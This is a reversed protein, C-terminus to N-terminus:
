KVYLSEEKYNKIKTLKKTRRCYACSECRIPDRLGAKVENYMPANDEVIRLAADLETQPIYFADLDTEKEKTVAVIVFPLTKGTMQRYLERYIAGQSVYDWAEIWSVKCGNKESWVMEFDKTSKLDVICGETFPGGLVEATEPFAAMIARCQEASLIFDAKGRFAVGAIEGKLIVQSKGNTLMRFLEDQKVRDVMLQAQKFDAKLEGTRSNLVEPHEALFADLEQKSTLAADVYSGVLLAASPEPKFEGSLEAMTAAECRAFSGFQSKSMYAWNAKPGYYNKQTLRM